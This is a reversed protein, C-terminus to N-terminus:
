RSHTARETAASLGVRLFRSLESARPAPDRTLWRYQRVAAAKLVQESPVLADRAPRCRTRRRIRRPAKSPKTTYGRRGLGHETSSCPGGGRNTSLQAGSVFVFRTHWTVKVTLYRHSHTTSTGIM